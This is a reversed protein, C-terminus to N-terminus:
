GDHHDSLHGWAPLLRMVALAVPMVYLSRRTIRDATLAAVLGGARADASRFGAAVAGLERGTAVAGVVSDPLEYSASRSRGTGRPSTVVVWASLMTRAGIRELGGEVGVWYGATPRAARAARARHEAGALTAADTMPQDPADDVAVGEVAGVTLGLLAFGDAVAGLKVPSLSGVVVAAAEDEVNM